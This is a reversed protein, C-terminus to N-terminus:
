SKGAKMLFEKEKDTLSDYGSKGIKDLIDDIQQQTIDKTNPKPKTVTNTNVYVKKFPKPKSKKKEFIKSIDHGKRLLYIYLFGFFAGAFHAIHGGTNSYGIELLYLLLIVATLYWLKFYGILPFRLVYLPQYITTATLIALIGASAGVLVWTQNLVFYSLVFVIGSFIIGLLYVTLYQKNNFFTLFLRSAFHLMIMNFFLHWFGSHLFGYTLLTWPKKLTEFPLSSLTIWNPFEFIHLTFQYFAPVSILFVAIHWYIVKNAIGGNRYEQKIDNLISSM